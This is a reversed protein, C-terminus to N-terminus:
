DTADSKVLLCIEDQDGLAAEILDLMPYIWRQERLCALTLRDMAFEHDDLSDQVLHQKLFAYDASAIDGLCTECAARSFLELWVAPGDEQHKWEPFLRAAAIGRGPAPPCEAEAAAIAQALMGRVAPSIALEPIRGLTQRDLIIFEDSDDLQPRDVSLWGTLAQWADPYVNGLVQDARRYYLRPV